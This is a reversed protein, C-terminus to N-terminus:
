QQQWDTDSAPRQRPKAWVAKVQLSLWWREERCKQPPNSFARARALSMTYTRRSRSHECVLHQSRQQELQAYFGALAQRELGGLLRHLWPTIQVISFFKSHPETTPPPYTGLSHRKSHRKSHLETHFVRGVLGRCAGRTSLFKNVLPWFQSLIAKSYKM